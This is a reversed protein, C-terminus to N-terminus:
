FWVRDLYLVLLMSLWTWGCGGKGVCVQAFEDAPSDIRGRVFDMCLGASDNISLWIVQDITFVQRKNFFHTRPSNLARLILPIRPTLRYYRFIM